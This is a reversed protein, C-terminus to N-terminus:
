PIEDEAPGEELARYEELLAADTPDLEVARRYASRARPWDELARLSRALETQALLHQPELEVVARYWAVARRRADRASDPSSRADVAFRTASASARLLDEVSADERDCLVSWAELARPWDWARARAEALARWTADDANGAATAQELADRAEGWDGREIFLKGLLAFVRARSRVDAGSPDAGAGDAGLEDRARLLEAFALDKEGRELRVEGAIGTLRGSGAGRARADEIVGLASDLDGSSMLARATRSALESDVERADRYLAYWLRAARSWQGM